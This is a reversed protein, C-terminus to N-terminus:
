HGQNNDSTAASNVSLSMVDGKNSTNVPYVEMSDEVSTIVLLFGIIIFLLSLMIVRSSGASFVLFSAIM